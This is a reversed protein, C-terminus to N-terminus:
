SSHRALEKVPNLAFSHEQKEVSYFISEAVIESIDAVKVSTASVFTKKCLPCATALIDPNCKTMASAADIALKHKQASNIKMNGLSGGCCLSNEDDFGTKELMAVHRLVEKPEDYIGSGRGLDCPSHYVVRRHLFNMKVKNEDILM